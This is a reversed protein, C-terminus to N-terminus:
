MLSMRGALASSFPFPFFFLRSEGRCMTYTPTMVITDGPIFTNGIQLGQPPTQRQLGSTVPPYLRLSEDICAQLYQLKGLSTAEFDNPNTETFFKDVEKQLEKYKEPHAALNYFLCTLTAATTDSAGLCTLITLWPSVYLSLTECVLHGVKRGRRHAHCRGHPEREGAM